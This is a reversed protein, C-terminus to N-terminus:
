QSSEQLPVRPFTATQDEKLKDKEEEIVGKQRGIDLFALASIGGPYHHRLFPHSVAFSYSTKFSQKGEWEMELKILGPLLNIKTTPKQSAAKWRDIFRWERQWEGDFYSFEVNKVGELLNVVDQNQEDEIDKWHRTIGRALCHSSQRTLFNKCSRLFYNVKVVYLQPPDVSNLSLKVSSVFQLKERDGSFDFQPEMINVPAPRQQIEELSLEQSSDSLAPYLELFHSNIDYFFLSGRLDQKLIEFVNEKARSVEIRSNIKKQQRLHFKLMQSIYTFATAFIALTVVIELLTMGQKKLFM